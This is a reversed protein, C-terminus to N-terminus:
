SEHSPRPSSPCSGATYKQQLNCPQPSQSPMEPPRSIRHLYAKRCGLCQHDGLICEKSSQNTIVIVSALKPRYLIVGSYIVRVMAFNGLTLLATTQRPSPGSTAKYTSKKKSRKVTQRQFRELSVCLNGFVNKRTCFVASIGFTSLLM